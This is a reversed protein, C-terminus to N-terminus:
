NGKSELLNVLANHIQEAEFPSISSLLVSFEEFVTECETSWKKSAVKEDYSDPANFLYPATSYIDTLFTVREIM